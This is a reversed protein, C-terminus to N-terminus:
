TRPRPQVGMSRHLFNLTNNMTREPLIANIWQTVWKVAPPRTKDQPFKWLKNYPKRYGILLTKRDKQVKVTRKIFTVTCGNDCLVQISMFPEHIGNFKYSIKSQEPLGDMKIKCQIHTSIKNGDPLLARIPKIQKDHDSPISMCFCNLTAASDVIPYLNRVRLDNSINMKTNSKGLGRKDERGQIKTCTEEWTTPEQLTRRIDRKQARVRKVTMSSTWVTDTRGDTDGWTKSTNGM